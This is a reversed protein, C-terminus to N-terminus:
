KRIRLKRRNHYTSVIDIPPAPPKNKNYCGMCTVLGALEGLDLMYATYHLGPDNDMVILCERCAVKSRPLFKFDDIHDIYLVEPFKDSYNKRGVPCQCYQLSHTSGKVNVWVMGTGKCTNCNAM